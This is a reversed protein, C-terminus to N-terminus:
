DLLRYLVQPCVRDRLTFSSVKRTFQNLNFANYLVYMLLHTTLFRSSFSLLRISEWCLAAFLSSFSDNRTERRREGEPREIQPAQEVTAEKQRRV